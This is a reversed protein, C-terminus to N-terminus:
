SKPERRQMIRRLWAQKAEFADHILAVEPNDMGDFVHFAGPWVHLECTSGCKWMDMAYQVASDRYVECEAVDIYTQPLRSLDKARSPSQYPTIRDTGRNGEGLVHDWLGRNTVGSCPSGFEFQRESVTECRDDLMPALLMQAMIPVSPLNRDRAMLCTVAALAAGGSIGCVVLRAPDIGLTNAHDSLYVLGAYCDEAPGPARCEPALRYEVSVVACPINALLSFLEPIATFRDGSVQGGGHIYYIAPLPSIPSDTPSFVSLVIPTGDQRPVTHETHTLHLFRELVTAASYYPKGNEDLCGGRLFAVDLKEPLQCSDILPVLSPDIPPRPLNIRPDLHAAESYPFPYLANEETM